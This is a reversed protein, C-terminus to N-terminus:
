GLFLNHSGRGFNQLKFEPLSFLPLITNKSIIKVTPWLDLFYIVLYAKSEKIKNLGHGHLLLLLIILPGNRRRWPSQDVM